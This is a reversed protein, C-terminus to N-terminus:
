KWSKWACKNSNWVQGLCWINLAYLRTLDLKKHLLYVNSTIKKFCEGMQRWQVRRRIIRRCYTPPISPLKEDPTRRIQGIISQASKPTLESELTLYENILSKLKQSHFVWSFDGSDDLNYAFISSQSYDDLDEENRAFAQAHM